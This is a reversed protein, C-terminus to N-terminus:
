WGPVGTEANNFHSKPTFYVPRRDTKEIYSDIDDQTNYIVVNFGNLIFILGVLLLVAVLLTFRPRM